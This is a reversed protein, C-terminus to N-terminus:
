VMSAGRDAAGKTKIDLERHNITVMQLRELKNNNKLSNRSYGSRSRLAKGSTQRGVILPISTL